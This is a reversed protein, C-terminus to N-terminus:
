SKRMKNLVFYIFMISVLSIFFNFLSFFPLAVSARCPFELTYGQCTTSTALSSNLNYIFLNSSATCNSILTAQYNCTNNNPLSHLPLCISSSSSDNRCFMESGCCAGNCSTNIYNGGVDLLYSRGELSNYNCIPLNSNASIVSLTKVMPNLGFISTNAQLTFTDTKVTSWDQRSSNVRVYIKKTQLPQLFESYPATSFNLCSNLLSDVSYCISLNQADSYSTLNLTFSNTYFSPNFILFERTMNTSINTLYYDSSDSYFYDGSGFNPNTTLRSVSKNIIQSPYGAIKIAIIDLYHKVNPKYISTNLPILFSYSLDSSLSFNVIKTDSSILSNGNYDSSNYINFILKYENPNITVVTGDNLRPALTTNISFYTAGGIVTIRPDIAGLGLYTVNYKGSSFARELIRGNTRPNTFRFYFVTPAIRSALYNLDPSVASCSINKFSKSPLTTNTCFIMDCYGSSLDVNHGIGGVEWVSWCNNVTLNLEVGYPNYWLSTFNIYEGPRVWPDSSDIATSRNISRIWVSALNFEPALYPIIDADDRTSNIYFVPYISGSGSFAIPPYPSLIGAGGNETVYAGSKYLGSFVNSLNLRTVISANTNPYFGDRQLFAFASDQSYSNENIFLINDHILNLAEPSHSNPSNNYISVSYNTINTAINSTINFDSTLYVGMNHISSVAYYNSLLLRSNGVLLSCNSYVYNEGPYNLNLIPITSNKTSEVFNNFYRKPLQYSTYYFNSQQGVGFNLNHNEVKLFVGKQTLSNWSGFSLDNLSYKCEKFIVKAQDVAAFSFNISLLITVIIFSFFLIDAKKKM